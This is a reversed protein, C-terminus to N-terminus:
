VDLEEPSDYLGTEVGVHEVVELWVNQWRVVDASLHFLDLLDKYLSLQSRQVAYELVCFLSVM